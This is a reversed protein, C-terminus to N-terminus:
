TDPVLARYITTEPAVEVRLQTKAPIFFAEGQQMARASAEQAMLKGPTNGIQAVFWIEPGTTSQGLSLAQGTTMLCQLEFEQAPTVFRSWPEEQSGLTPEILQTQPAQVDLHDLLAEVDMTKTTLGGRLVNNSNAMLEMGTGELYAHLVGARVFMAQGPELCILNLMYFCFLGRDFHDSTSLSASAKLLWYNPDNREFAVKQHRNQLDRVLPELAKQRQHFDLEMVRRYLQQTSKPTEQIGELLPAWQPISLFRARIESWPRFGCLGYFPSLAAIIEPKHNDDRFLRESGGTPPMSNQERAFGLEAQEKTPHVQISLPQAASLVKFLFPLTAGFRQMVPEGLLTEPASVMAQDLPIALSNDVDLLTSPLDPHAGMWFEAHPKQAENSIGLLKPIASTDGWAYHQIGGKLPYPKSKLLLKSTMSSLILSTPTDHLVRAM